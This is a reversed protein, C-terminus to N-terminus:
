AEVGRRATLPEEGGAQHDCESIIIAIVMLLNLPFITDVPLNLLGLYFAIVFFFAGYYLEGGAENGHRNIKVALRWATRIGIALYVFLFFVGFNVLINILGSEGQRGSPSLGLFNLLDSDGIIDLSGIHEAISQAKLSIVEQALQSYLLITLLAFVTTLAGIVALMRMRTLRFCSLGALGIISSLFFAGIGTLSQTLLLVVLLATIVLVRFTIPRQGRSLVFPGLLCIAFAFGNPDDWVSGFRVSYSNLYALAPLRGVGLFLVIQLLEVALAFYVFWELFTSIRRIDWVSDRSSILLSVALFFIGTQLLWPNGTFLFAVLTQAAPYGYLIIKVLAPRDLAINNQATRVILAVALVAFFIVYKGLQLVLPTNSYTPSTLANNVQLPYRYGLYYLALCLLTLILSTNDSLFRGANVIVAKM